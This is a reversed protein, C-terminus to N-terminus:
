EHSGDVRDAGAARTSPGGRRATEGLLREWLVLTREVDLREGDERAVKWTYMRRGNLFIAPTEAVGLSHGLLIDEDIRERGAGNEMAEKFRVIDLQVKAALARYPREALRPAVDHLLGCYAHAQRATGVSRAAEAALAADCSFHHFTREQFANCATCLPYHKFVCRVRGPFREMLNGVSHYFDRCKSCEFDSFVVITHPADILGLMVDDSRVPIEHPPAQRYRWELYDVNNTLKRMEGSCRWASQRAAVALGGLLVIVALGVGALLVGAARATSPYPRIGVDTEPGRPRRPWAQLTLVFIGANVVHAAVCWTCWVPLSFAMLYMFFLSGCFGATVAALPLWHWRRGAHNPVGVIAFWAALGLFYALGLISTPVPGVRGWRSGLVYDCDIGGSPACVDAGFVKGPEGGPASLQLLVGSIVCGALALLVLVVRQVPCRSRCSDVRCVELM